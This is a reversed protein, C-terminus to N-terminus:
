YTQLPPLAVPRWDIAGLFEYDIKYLQVGALVSGKHLTPRMESSSDPWRRYLLPLAPHPRNSIPLFTEYMYIFILHTLQKEPPNRRQDQWLLFRRYIMYTVGEEDPIDSWYYGGQSRYQDTTPDPKELTPARSTIPDIERGDATLGVVVVVRQFRTSRPLVHAM